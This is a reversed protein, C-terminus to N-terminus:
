TFNKKYFFRRIKMLDRFIGEKDQGTNYIQTKKKIEQLCTLLNM